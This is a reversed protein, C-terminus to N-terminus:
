NGERGYGNIQNSITSLPYPSHDGRDFSYNGSTNTSFDAKNKLVINRMIEEWQSKNPIRLEANASAFCRQTEKQMTLFFSHSQQSRDKVYERKAFCELLYSEIYKIVTTNDPIMLFGNEDMRIGIYSILVSGERERFCDKEKSNFFGYPYSRYGGNNVELINNEIRYELFTDLNPIQCDQIERPLNFYYSSTPRIITFGKHINSRYNGTHMNSYGMLFRNYGIMLEPNAGLITQTVDVEIPYEDSCICDRKHCKKCDLNIKLDCYETIGREIYEAVRVREKYSNHHINDSDRYAIQIPHKFNSPLEVKGNSNLNLHVVYVRYSDATLLKYIGEDAYMKCIDEDFSSFSDAYKIAFSSIALDSSIYKCGVM